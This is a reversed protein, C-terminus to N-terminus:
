KVDVIEYSQATLDFSKSGGSWDYELSNPMAGRIIVIRNPPEVGYAMKAEKPYALVVINASKSAGNKYKSYSNGELIEGSFYATLQIDGVTILDKFSLTISSGKEIQIKGYSCDVTLEDKDKDEKVSLQSAGGLPLDLYLYEVTISAGNAPPQTFKIKKLIGNEHVALYDKGEFQLVGNVKVIESGLVADDKSLEFITNAGDGTFSDTQSKAGFYALKGSALINEQKPITLNLVM